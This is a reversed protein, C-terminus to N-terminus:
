PEVGNAVAGRAFMGRPGPPTNDCSSAPLWSCSSSAVIRACNLLYLEYWRRSFAFTRGATVILTGFLWPTSSWLPRPTIKASMLM